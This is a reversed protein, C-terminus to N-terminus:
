QHRLHEAIAETCVVPQESCVDHTGDPVITRQVRPLLRELEADTKQLFPYTRGGSIMLVPRNLKRIRDRLLLPFADASTTIAEWERLNARFM